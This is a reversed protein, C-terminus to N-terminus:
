RAALIAWVAIVGLTGFVLFAGYSDSGDALTALGDIAFLLALTLGCVLGLVLYVHRPDLLQVAMSVAAHGDEHNILAVAEENYTAPTIKSLKRYVGEHANPIATIRDGTTLFLFRKNLMTPHLNAFTQDTVMQGPYDITRGSCSIAYMNFAPGDLPVDNLYTGPGERRSAKIREVAGSVPNTGRLLVAPADRVPDFEDESAKRAPLPAFGRDDGGRIRDLGDLLARRKEGCLARLM